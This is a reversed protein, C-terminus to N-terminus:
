VPPIIVLVLRQDAIYSYMINSDSHHDIRFLAIGIAAAMIATPAMAPPTARPSNIGIKSM